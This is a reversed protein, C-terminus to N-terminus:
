KRERGGTRFPKMGSVSNQEGKGDVKVRKLCVWGDGVRVFSKGSKEDVRIIQTGKTFVADEETGGVEDEHVGEADLFLVRKEKGQGQGNQTVGTTWVSGFVRMRRTWDEVTNWQDWDVEAAAKSVKPAHTLTSSALRNAMWGADRTPPVHVGDRLGQVLMQAGITGLQETLQSVTCDPPIAVGPSATQALVTGHDFAEDDLTQM